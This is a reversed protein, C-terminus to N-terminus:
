DASNNEIVCNSCNRLSIGDNRNENAHNGQLTNNEYGALIIGANGNRNAANDKILNGDSLVVIGAESGWGSSARAQFSQLIVGDSLITIAPGDESEILPMGKGTDIDRLVLNKTIKLSEHHM